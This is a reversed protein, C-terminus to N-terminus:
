AGASNALEREARLWDDLPDGGAYGRSEYIEYARRSIEQPSVASRDPSLSRAKRRKPAATRPTTTPPLPNRGEPGTRARSSRRYRGTEEIALKTAEDLPSRCEDIPAFSAAM